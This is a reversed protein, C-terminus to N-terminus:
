ALLADTAEAVAVLATLDASKAVVDRVLQRGSLRKEQVVPSSKESPETAKDKLREPALDLLEKAQSSLDLKAKNVMAPFSTASAAPQRKMMRMATPLLQKEFEEASAGSVAPGWAALSFEALPKKAELVHKTYLEMLAARDVGESTTIAAVLLAPPDEAKKLFALAWPIAVERTAALVKRLARTAKLQWRQQWRLCKGMEAALTELLSTIVEPKFAGEKSISKLANSSQLWRLLYQLLFVMVRPKFAPQAKAEKKLLKFFFAQVDAKSADEDYARVALGARGLLELCPFQLEPQAAVRPSAVSCVFTLVAKCLDPPLDKGREAGKESLEEIAARCRAPFASPLEQALSKVLALFQADSLPM